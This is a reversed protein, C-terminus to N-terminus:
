WPSSVRQPPDTKQDANDKGQRDKPILFLANTTRRVHGHGERDRQYWIMCTLGVDLLSLHGSNQVDLGAIELIEAFSAGIPAEDVKLDIGEGYVTFVTTTTPKGLFLARYVNLLTESNNVVKGVDPPM